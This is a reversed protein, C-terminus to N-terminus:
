LLVPVIPSDSPSMWIESFSPVRRGGVVDIAQAVLQRPTEGAHGERKQRRIDDALDQIEARGRRDIQLDAAVIEVRVEGVGVLEQRLDAVDRADGVCADLLRRRERREVDVDVARARM